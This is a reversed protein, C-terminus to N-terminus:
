PKVKYGDLTFVQNGNYTVTVTIQQLGDDNETGDGKPDLRVAEITIDYGDPIETLKAAQYNPPNNTSDYEWGKIVEMQSKALSEATVHKQGVIVGRASTELGLLFTIGVLGLIGLAILVEVLTMGLQYNFAHHCNRVTGRRLRKMGGKVKQRLIKSIDAM